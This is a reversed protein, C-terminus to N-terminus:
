FCSSCFIAASWLMTTGIIFALYAFVSVQAAILIMKIKKPTMGISFRSGVVGGIMGASGMIGLLSFDMNGQVIHALAGCVGLVASFALTTGILMKPDSKVVYVLSGMMISVVIMGILGSLSGVIFGTLYQMVYRGTGAHHIGQDAKATGSCAIRYTSWAMLVATMGLVLLSPLIATFYSAMICGIVGTSTMTLFAKRHVYGAKLYSLAASVTVMATIGIATGVATPVSSEVHAVVTFRGLNVSTMSTIIGMFLSAAGVVAIDLLDIM